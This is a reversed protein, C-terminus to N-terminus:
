EHRGILRHFSDVKDASMRPHHARKELVGVFDLFVFGHELDRAHDEIIAPGDLWTEFAVVRRTKALMEHARSLRLGGGGHLCVLPNGQGTERYRIRFGDAEVFKESFGAGPATTERSRQNTM